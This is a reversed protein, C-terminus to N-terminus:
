QHGQPGGGSLINVSGEILSLSRWQALVSRGVFCVLPPYKPTASGVAMIEHTTLKQKRRSKYSDPGGYIYNVEMHAEPFDGKLDELKKDQEVKKAL